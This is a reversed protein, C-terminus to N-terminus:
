PSSIKFGVGLRQEPAAVPGAKEFLAITVVAAQGDRVALRRSAQVKYRYSESYSFLGGHGRFEAVVSLTHEGPAVTRRFAEFDLSQALRASADTFVTEGDLACTVDILRFSAGVANHLLATLVASPVRVPEEPPAPAPLAAPTSPVVPPTSVVPAAVSPAVPEDSAIEAAPHRSNKPLPTEKPWVLVTPPGAAPAASSALVGAAPPAGSTSATPPLAEGGPPRPSWVYWNAVVVLVLAVVALLTAIQRRNAM